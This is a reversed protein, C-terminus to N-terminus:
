RMSEKKLSWSKSCHKLSVVFDLILESKEGVGTGSYAYGEELNVDNVLIYM